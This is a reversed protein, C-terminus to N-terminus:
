DSYLKLAELCLQLGTLDTHLDPTVVVYLRRAEAWLMVSEPLGFDELEVGQADRWVGEDDPETAIHAQLRSLLEADAEAMVNMFSMVPKGLGALFGAEFAVSPDCRPGQFPSLDVVAADARRMRAVREAYIERAMAESLEREALAEPDAPLPMFDMAECLAQVEPALGFADDLVLAPGALYLTRLKPM